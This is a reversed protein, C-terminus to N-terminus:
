DDDNKSNYMSDIMDGIGQMKSILASIGSYRQYYFQYTDKEEQELDHLQAILSKSSSEKLSDSVEKMKTTVTTDIDKYLNTMHDILGKSVKLSIEQGIKITKPDVSFKFGMTSEDFRSEYHEGDGLFPQGDITGSIDVGSAKAKSLGLMANDNLISISQLAGMEKSVFTLAGTGDVSVDFQGGASSLQSSIQAAIQSPTYTGKPITVDVNSGNIELNLVNPKDFTVKSAMQTGTLKALEPKRSIEVTHNGSPMAGLSNVSLSGTSSESYSGMHKYVIEPDKYLESRIKQEDLVLHGKKDVSVGIASLDDVTKFNMFFDSMVEKIDNSYDKDYMSGVFDKDPTQANYKNFRDQLENINAVFANVNKIVADPNTATSIRVPSSTVDNLTLNLGMVDHVSNSPSTMEVGNIEFKADQAKQVEKAYLGSSNFKDVLGADGSATISFKSEAGTKTSLFALGRKGNAEVITAKVFGGESNIEYALDDLTMGNKVQFDLASGDGGAIKIVGTPLVDTDKFGSIVTSQSSALQNIKMSLSLGNSTGSKSVSVTVDSPSTNNIAYSILANRSNLPSLTNDVIGNLLNDFETLAGKQVNANTIEAKKYGLKVGMKADVMMQVNDKVSFGLKSNDLAKDVIDLGENHSDKNVIYYKKSVVMGDNSGTISFSM